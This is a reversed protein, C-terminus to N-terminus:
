FFFLVVQRVILASGSLLCARRVPQAGRRSGEWGERSGALGKWPPRFLMRLREVEAGQGELVAWLVPLKAMKMKAKAIQRGLYRSSNCRRGPSELM